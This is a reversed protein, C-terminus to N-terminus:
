YYELNNIRDELNKIDNMRYRKHTTFEIYADSINYLYPPLIISAIELSDDIAIPKQPNESPSGLKLQLKGSKNLYIRDIRGM